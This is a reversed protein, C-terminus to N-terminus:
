PFPTSLPQSLDHSDVPSSEDFPVNSKIYPDTWDNSFEKELGCYRCKGSSTKGDPTEIIWHHVCQKQMTKSGSM